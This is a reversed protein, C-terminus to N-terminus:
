RRQRVDRALQGVFANDPGHGHQVHVVAQARARGILVLREHSLQGLQQCNGQEAAFDVDSAFRLAFAAVDLGDRAALTVQCSVLRKGAQAAM